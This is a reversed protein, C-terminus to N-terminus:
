PKGVLATRMAALRMALDAHGLQTFHLGDNTAGPTTIVGALVRKPILVVRYRSALRRQIAGFRHGWPPVPLEFMVVHRGSRAVDQLLEDLSREFDAASTEGLLDNGGIEILVMEAADLKAAQQLATRVTAGAVALNRISLGYDRELHGPWPLGEGFEASLSDGIVAWKQDKSANWTPTVHYPVEVVLCTLWSLLVLLRVRKFSSIQADASVGADSANTPKRVNRESVSWLVLSSLFTVALWLPMPTGSIGIATLGLVVSWTRLRHTGRTATRGALWWALGLLGFGTFFAHGSVCHFVFWDRMM